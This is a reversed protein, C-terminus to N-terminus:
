GNGKDIHFRYGSGWINQIYKTGDPSLKKRIAKIHAKVVEDVDFATDENWILSYLQERSLVQEPHSALCYLIEFEKRTLDLPKNKLKVERKDPDIVLDKGCILVCRYRDSGGMKVCSHIIQHALQLCDQLTYAKGSFLQADVKGTNKGRNTQNGKSSLVLIPVSKAAQMIELLRYGDCESLASDLIVLTFDQDLYIQLADHVSDACIVEVCDYELAVRIEEQTAPDSNIVLIRNM